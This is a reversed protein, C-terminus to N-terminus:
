CNGVSGSGGSGSVGNVKGRGKVKGLSASKKAPTVVGQRAEVGSVDITQSVQGWQLANFQFWM